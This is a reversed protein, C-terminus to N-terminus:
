HDINNFISMDGHVVVFRVSLMLVKQLSGIDPKRISVNEYKKFKGVTVLSVSVVNTKSGM